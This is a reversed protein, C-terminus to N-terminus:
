EHSTRHSDTHVIKYPLLPVAPARCHQCEVRNCVSPRQRGRQGRQQKQLLFDREVRHGKLSDPVACNFKLPSLASRAAERSRTSHPQSHHQWGPAHAAVESDGECTLACRRDRQRDAGRRGEGKWHLRKSNAQVMREVMRDTHSRQARSQELWVHYRAAIRGVRHSASCRCSRATRASRM